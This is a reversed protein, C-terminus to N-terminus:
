EARFFQNLSIEDMQKSELKAAIKKAHKEKREILKEIKKLEVHKETVISRRQEMHDRAIQVERQLENIKTKLSDIYVTQEQIKMIVESQIYKHLTMEAQEKVKLQEYLQNAVLEFQDVARQQEILARNKEDKRVHLIKYLTATDNLTM